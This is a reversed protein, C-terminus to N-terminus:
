KPLRYEFEQVLEYERYVRLKQEKVYITATVYQYLLSPKLRFKESLISLLLDSRVFRIFHIKGKDPRKDPISFSEPLLRPRFSARKEVESPTAGSLISYRHNENHFKEFALSETALEEFSAFHQSRFFTKRWTDQFREIFPNRWPESFPIFVVEVGLSLCLRIILGFSRPHRNSGRFVQHNDLKLSKPVGLRKWSSILGEALSLDNARLDPNLAIKHSGVDILHFSYFRTGGALYRPGVVDGEQLEGPLNPIEKPYPKGSGEYSSKSDKRTVLGHRSLIRNITWPQPIKELGLKKLEWSIALTGIQAYKIQELRKRTAVILHELKESTKNAIQKPSRSEEQYWTDRGSEYRGLWKFLWPKSRNLDRCILFPPEGQLYRRIAEQRVQEEDLM